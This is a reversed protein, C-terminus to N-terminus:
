KVKAKKFMPQALLDKLETRMRHRKMADLAAQMAPRDGLELHVCALNIYIRTNDEAHPAAAAIYREARVRDVPLGNNDSQVAYLANTYIDLTVPSPALLRDFMLLAPAFQKASVLQLARRHLAAVLYQDGTIAFVRDLVKTNGEIAALMAADVLYRTEPDHPAKLAWALIRDVPFEKDLRARSTKSLAAIAPLSKTRVYLGFPERESDLGALFQKWAATDDAVLACLLPLAQRIMPWPGTPVETGIWQDQLTTTTLGELARTALAVYMRASRPELKLSNTHLLHMVHNTANRWGWTDLLGPLCNMAEDFKGNLSRSSIHWTADQQAGEEAARWESATTKFPGPTCKANRLDFSLTVAERSDVEWPMPILDKGLKDLADRIAKPKGSTPPKKLWTGFARSAGKGHSGSGRLGFALVRTTLDDALAAAVGLDFSHRTSDTITSWGSKPTGIVVTLGDGEVAGISAFARKVAAVLPQLKKAQVVLGALYTM